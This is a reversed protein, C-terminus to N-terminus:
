RLLKIRQEFLRLNNDMELDTQWNSIIKNDILTAFMQSELFSSLFPRHQQPQDSLFSAKDFNQLSERNTLWEEKGQNPQIVFHEYAAFMQVFRNLFIERIANNFRLDELYQEHPSLPGRRKAPMVDKSCSDLNDLAVGSRRVVDVIKQLAESRPPGNHLGNYQNTDLINSHDRLDLSEHMPQKKRIHVGSPLTSSTTNFLHEYEFRQQLNRVNIITSTVPQNIIREYPVNFKDLVAAIEAKFDNKHPFTPLEEPLQISKHDIDVYCLTAESGIKTNSESDAHLGMVFPVPADLFHHLATPLIPAYVHPWTFPFLLSTITEGVIM